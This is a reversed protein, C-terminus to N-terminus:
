DEFPKAPQYIVPRWVITPRQDLTAPDFAQIDEALMDCGQCRFKLASLRRDKVSLLRLDAALYMASHGCSKCKARIWYGLRCADGVTELRYRVM